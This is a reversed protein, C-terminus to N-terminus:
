KQSNIHFFAIRDAHFSGIYIIGNNPLAVTPLGFAAERFEYKDEIELNTKNIKIISFPLSCAIADICTPSDGAQHNLETAWIYDGDLVLNDPGEIFISKELKQENINYIKVQDGSNYAIYIM